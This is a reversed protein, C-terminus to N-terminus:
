PSTQSVGVVGIQDHAVHGPLLEGLPRFADGVLHAADRHTDPPRHALPGDQGERALANSEIGPERADDPPCGRWGGSDERKALVARQLAEVRAGQDPDVAVAAPNRHQIRKLHRGGHGLETGVPRREEEQVLVPLSREDVGRGALPPTREGNRFQAGDRPECGVAGPQEDATEAPRHLGVVAVACRQPPPAQRVMVPRQAIQLRQVPNHAERHRPGRRRSGEDVVGILLPRRQLVRRPLDVGEHAEIRVPQGVAIRLAIASPNRLLAHGVRLASEVARAAEDDPRVEDCLLHRVVDSIVEGPYEFEAVPPRRVATGRAQGGAQQRPAALRCTIRQDHHTVEIGARLPPEGPDHGLAARRRGGQAGPEAAGIAQRPNVGHAQAADPERADVVHEVPRHVIHRRPDQRRRPEHLGVVRDSAQPLLYGIADDDLVEMRDRLVQQFRGEQLVGPQVVDAAIPVDVRHPVLGVDSEAQTFGPPDRHDADIEVGVVLGVDRGMVVDQHGIEVRPLGAQDRGNAVVPPEEIEGRELRHQGVRHGHPHDVRQRALPGQGLDLDVARERPPLAVGAKDIRVPLVGAHSVERPDVLPPQFQAPVILCLAARRHLAHAPRVLERDPVIRHGLGQDAFPPHM